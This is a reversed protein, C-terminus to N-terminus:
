RVAVESVEAFFNRLCIRRTNGVHAEEHRVEGESSLTVRCDNIAHDVEEFTSVDVIDNVPKTKILVGGIM